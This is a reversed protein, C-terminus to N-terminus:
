RLFDPINSKRKCDIKFSDEKPFWKDNWAKLQRDMTDQTIECIFRLLRCLFM